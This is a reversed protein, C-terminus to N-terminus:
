VPDLSLFIDCICQMSWYASVPGALGVNSLINKKIRPINEHANYNSAWVLAETFSGSAASLCCSM